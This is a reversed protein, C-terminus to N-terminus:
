RALPSSWIINWGPVTDCGMKRLPRRHAIWHPVVHGFRFGHLGFPLCSRTGDIYAIELAWINSGFPLGSHIPVHPHPENYEVMQDACEKQRHMRQSCRLQPLLKEFPAMSCQSVPRDSASPFRNSNWLHGTANQLLDIVIDSVVAGASIHYTFIICVYICMYTYMYVCIHWTIHRCIYMNLVSLLMYM